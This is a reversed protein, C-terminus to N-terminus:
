GRTAPLDFELLGISGGAVDPRTRVIAHPSRLHSLPSEFQWTPRGGSREVIRHLMAIIRV